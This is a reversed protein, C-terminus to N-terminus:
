SPDEVGVRSGRHTEETPHCQAGERYRPLRCCTYVICIRNAGRKKELKRSEGEGGGGGGQGKPHASYM